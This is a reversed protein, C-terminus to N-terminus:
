LFALLSAVAAGAITAILNVLDNDIWEIGGAVVSSTGCVHVRRETFQKCTSCWRREQLTAGLLSDAIAGSVGAVVVIAASGAIGLARAALAVFLAGGIMALSGAISVGGSTGAEVPRWTFLSRPTGGYLTGLETAWTDAAAAALAGLAAFTMMPALEHSGVVTLSASAAFVGGNAIVQTVDRTGGKAVIGRTRVDKEAARFRSLATSAVFYIVLLAGWDWGAIVSATGLAVATVAGSTSLSGARRAIAAIIAALVVGALARELILPM